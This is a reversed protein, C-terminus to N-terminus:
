RTTVLPKDFKLLGPVSHIKPTELSEEFNMEPLMSPLRKALMTKGSGPPGIMLINHAGASAVELARKVNEQGKVESFDLYPESSMEFIENLNAKMYEKNEIDSLIEICENLSNASYTKLGEVISAELANKQPLIIGEFNNKKARVCIPLVGRIPRLFGDLSLEGLILFRELNPLNIDENSQLISIAIPLDFSSGEKRIDAPALNITIKKPPFKYGSNKIAAIVREKSEKVANDPLGVITISPVQNEIHTEVELVFADIGYTAATFVKAFM